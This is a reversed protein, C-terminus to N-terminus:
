RLGDEEERRGQLKSGEPKDTLLWFEASFNLKVCFPSLDASTDQCGSVCPGLLLSRQPILLREREPHRCRRCINEM